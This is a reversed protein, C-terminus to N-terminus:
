VQQAVEGDGVDTAWSRDQEKGEHLHRWKHLAVTAPSEATRSLSSSASSQGARTMEDQKAKAASSKPTLQRTGKGKPKKSGNGRGENM